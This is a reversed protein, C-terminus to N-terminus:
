KYIYKDHYYKITNGIIKKKWKNAIRIITDNKIIKKNFSTKMWYYLPMCVVYNIIENDNNLKLNKYIITINSKTNVNLIIVSNTHRFQTSINYKYTLQVNDKNTLIINAEYEQFSSILSIAYKGCYVEFQAKICIDKDNTIGYTYLLYEDDSYEISINKNLKLKDIMKTYLLVEDHILETIKINNNLYKNTIKLTIKDTRQLYCLILFFIDEHLNLLM